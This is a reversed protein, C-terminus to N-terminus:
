ATSGDAVLAVEARVRVDQLREVYRQLDTLCRLGRASWRLTGYLDYEAVEVEVGDAWCERCWTMATDIAADRDPRRSQRLGRSWM